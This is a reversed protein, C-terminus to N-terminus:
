TDATFENKPRCIGFDLLVFRDDKKGINDPKVDGHVYGLEHVKEIAKVLSYFLNATQQLGSTLWRDSLVEPLWEEVLFTESGNSEFYTEIINPHRINLPHSSREHSSIKAVDQATGTIKKLVVRKQRRRWTAEFVMKQSGTRPLLRVIEIERPPILDMCATVGEPDDKHLLVWRSVARMDITRNKSTELLHELLVAAQSDQWSELSSALERLESTPFMGFRDNVGGSAELYSELLTRVQVGLRAFGYVWEPAEENFRL